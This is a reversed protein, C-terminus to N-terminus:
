CSQSLAQPNVNIVFDPKKRLIKRADSSTIKGNKDADAIPIIVNDITELQASVRLVTRADSATVKGNMDVDGLLVTKASVGVCLLFLLIFAFLISLEKKM